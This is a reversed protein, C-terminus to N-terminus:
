YNQDEDRGEGGLIRSLDQGEDEVVLPLDCGPLLPVNLHSFDSNEPVENLVSTM